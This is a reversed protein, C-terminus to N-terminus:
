AADIYGQYIDYVDQLGMQNLTNIYIDWDKEIDTDGILGTEIYHKTILEGRWPTLSWITGEQNLSNDLPALFADLWRCAAGWQGVSFAVGLVLRGLRM